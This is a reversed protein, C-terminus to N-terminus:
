KGNGFRQNWEQVAEREPKAATRVLDMSGTYINGENRWLKRRSQECNATITIIEPTGEDGATKMCKKGCYRCRQCGRPTNLRLWTMSAGVGEEKERTETDYLNRTRENEFDVFDVHSAAEELAAKYTRHEFATLRSEPNCNFVHFDEAEFIPRLEKFWENLKAYTDLNGRISGPHRRQDFHYTNTASMNLDVGLLNVMRIGLVFLIRMAALLVSRGGGYSKHNGWNICDEWLFQKPQFHENRKFYVVNPCDGVRTRMFKWTDSNFVKRNAMSIPVFKQILPDLWISRIWHDPSDVCTWLNPRFTRPSNNLGMTLIGPQRLPGHDLALFSPGSAILFASRGRYTDAIWLPHHDQTFFLPTPQLFNKSFKRYGEHRNRGWSAINEDNKDKADAIPTIERM